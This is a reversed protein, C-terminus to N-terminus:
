KGEPRAVAFRRDIVQDLTIPGKLMNQATFWALQRRMDPFDLRAEPEVYPIAIRIQAEPQGTYKELIALIEPATPGDRRSGDPASFAAHFDRLGRRLAGLFRKVLDAREALTRQGAFVASSQWPTEDGIWGLLKLDGRALSPAVATVPIVGTDATGGTVASVINPNSQLPLFRLSALAVGHKLAVQSAAYHVPSGIQSIAVSHGALQDFRALGAASAANSVIFANVQYGKTEHAQGAIIKLAGQAALSYLGASVGTAGIDVAGSVVAVPVAGPSDFDIFQPEIGAAAFYGKETAIYLAGAASTKVGGIKVAEARAATTAFLLAALAAFVRQSASGAKKRTM